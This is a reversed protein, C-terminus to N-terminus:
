LAVDTQCYVLAERKTNFTRRQEGDVLLVWTTGLGGGGFGSIPRGDLKIIECARSTGIVEYHGPEIKASPMPIVNM